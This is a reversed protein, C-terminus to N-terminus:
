IFPILEDLSNIQLTINEQIEHGNPNYFVQKWGAKKAGVIDAEFDDGIMVSEETSSKTRQLAYEFVMPHPKREGIAESTIVHGFFKRIGSNELKIDQIEEFGNTIVHMEYGLDQCRLLLDMTGPVLRTQYPSIEVYREGMEQSLDIDANGFHELTLLFRQFRLIEKSMKGERYAKWCQENYLMYQQHFEGFSTNLKGQLKQEDFITELAVKSNADFDWLTRDLDFFLVHDKFM